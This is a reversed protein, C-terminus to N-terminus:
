FKRMKVYDEPLDEDYMIYWCYQNAAITTITLAVCALSTLIKIKFKSLYTTLKNM